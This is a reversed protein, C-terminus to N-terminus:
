DYVIFRDGYPFIIKWTANEPTADELYVERLDNNLFITEQNNVLVIIEEGDNNLFLVEGDIVKGEYSFDWFRDDWWDERWDWDDKNDMRTEEVPLVIFIITGLVILLSITDLTHM